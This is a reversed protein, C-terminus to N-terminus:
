YVGLKINERIGRTERETNALKALAIVGLLMASHFPKEIGYCNNKKGKGKLSLYGILV